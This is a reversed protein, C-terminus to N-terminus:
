PSRRRRGLRWRARGLRTPGHSVDKDVGVHEDVVQSPGVLQLRATVSKVIGDDGSGLEESSVCGRIQGGEQQGREALDDDIAGDGLSGSPDASLGPDPEGVCEDGCRGEFVVQAQGGAVPAVEVGNSPEPEPAEGLEQAVGQRECLRQVEGGQAREIM